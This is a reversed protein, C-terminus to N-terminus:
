KLKMENFLKNIKQYQAVITDYEDKTMERVEEVGKGSSLDYPCSFWEPNLYMSTREISCTEDDLIICYTLYREGAKYKMPKDVHVMRFSTGNFNIMFYRGALQAYWEHCKRLNEFTEVSDKRTQEKVYDQYEKLSADPKSQLYQEVTKVM